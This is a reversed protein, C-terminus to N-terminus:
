YETTIRMNFKKKPSKEHVLGWGFLMEGSTHEQMDKTSCSIRTGMNKNTYLLWSWNDKSLRKCMEYLKSGEETKVLLIKSSIKGEHM